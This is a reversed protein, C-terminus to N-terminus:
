YEEDRKRENMIALEEAIRQLANTIDKLYEISPHKKRKKAKVVKIPESM